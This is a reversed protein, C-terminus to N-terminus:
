LRRVPRNGNGAATFVDIKAIQMALINGPKKALPIHGRERFGQSGPRDRCGHRIRLAATVPMTRIRPSSPFSSVQFWTHQSHDEFALIPRIRRLTCSSSLELNSGYIRTFLSSTRSNNRFSYKNKEEHKKVSRRM